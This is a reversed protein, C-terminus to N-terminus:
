KVLTIHGQVKEKKDSYLHAFQIDWVYVGDDALQDGYTGDWGAQANYSEFLIEGWRNYITMHFDYPDFGSVFVPLFSNNYVDGNPTFANPVYFLLPELLEIKHSASDMCGLENTIFLQIEYSDVDGELYSHSTFYENDNYGDGFNWQYDFGPNFAETIYFTVDTGAATPEDQSYTFDAVPTPYFDVLMDDQALCGNLEAYVTYVGGFNVLFPSGDTVGNSWSVNAYDPNNADLTISEGTCISVDQGADIMPIPNVKLDVTVISDCGSVASITEVYIGTQDIVLGSPLAYVDGECISDVVFATLLPEITLDTIWISDCGMVNTLVENYIGSAVVTTGSPLVFSAGYCLDITQNYTIVPVVTLDTTIISDCGFTTAFNEVYTGTSNVTLGSPLTFFDGECIMPTQNIFSSPNITITKTVTDNKCRHVIMQVNFTGGSAYAHDVTDGTAFNAQGAVVEGFDWSVSDAPFDVDYWGAFNTNYTSCFDAVVFDSTDPDDVFGSFYGSFGAPADAGVISVAIASSSVITKDGVLLSDIKYTEWPLGLVVEPNLMPQGNLLVTSGVETTVTMGTNFSVTGIKDIAAIEDITSPLFCSIEPVLVMGGDANGQSSAMMQYMYAPESTRVYMNKHGVGQYYMNPVLYYDGAMLTTIPTLGGNVYVDTNDYHAIVMPREMSDNGMAEVLVYEQGIKDTPISIDFGFDQNATNVPNISGTFNGNILAIPKDSTILSGIIGILNSPLAAVHKLCVTYTEGADLTVTFSPPPVYAPTGWFKINVDYDSVTITTNDQTAMVGATISRPHGSNTGANFCPMGGVRFSTGLGHTGKGTAWDAHQILANNGGSVRYSMYFPESAYCVIGKNTNVQNLQNKKVFLPTNLGTGVYYTFPNGNSITATTLLNGNGREITVVFPTTSPTSLYIYQKKVLSTTGGWVVIGGSSPAHMAPIYHITDLQADTNFPLLIIAFGVLLNLLNKM